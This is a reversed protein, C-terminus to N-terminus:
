SCFTLREAKAPCVIKMANTRSTICVVPAMVPSLHHISLILTTCSHKDGVKPVDLLTVAVEAIRLQFAGVPCVVKSISIIVLPVGKPM